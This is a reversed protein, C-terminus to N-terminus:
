SRPCYWTLSTEPSTVARLATHGGDLQYVEFRFVRDTDQDSRLDRISAEVYGAGKAVALATLYTVRAGASSATFAQDGGHLPMDVDGRVVMEAETDNRDPLFEIEIGNATAVTTLLWLALGILKKM